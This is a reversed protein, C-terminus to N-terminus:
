FFVSRVLKSCRGWGRTAERVAHHDLGASLSAGLLRLVSDTEMAHWQGSGDGVGAADVAAAGSAEGSPKQLLAAAAVASMAAVTALDGRGPRRLKVGQRVFARVDRFRQKPAADAAEGTGEASGGASTAVVRSPALRGVLSKSLPGRLSPGYAAGHRAHTGVAFGEVCLFWAVALKLPGM